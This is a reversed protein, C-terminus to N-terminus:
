VTFTKHSRVSSVSGSANRDRDITDKITITEFALQMQFIFPDSSGDM